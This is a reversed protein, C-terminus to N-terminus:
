RSLLADLDEYRTLIRAPLRFGALEHGEPLGLWVEHKRALGEVGAILGTQEGGSAFAFRQATYLKGALYPEAKVEIRKVNMHAAPFLDRVRSQISGNGPISQQLSAIETGTPDKAVFTFTHTDADGNMTERLTYWHNNSAIHPIVQITADSAEDAHGRVSVSLLLIGVILLMEVNM